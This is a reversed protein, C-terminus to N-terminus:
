VGVIRWGFWPSDVLRIGLLEDQVAVGIMGLACVSFMGHGACDVM